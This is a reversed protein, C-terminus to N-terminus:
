LSHGGILTTSEIPIKAAPLPLLNGVPELYSTKIQCRRKVWWLLRRVGGYVYRMGSTPEQLKDLVFCVIGWWGYARVYLARHKWCMKLDSGFIRWRRGTLSSHGERRLRALPEDIAQIQYGAACFRVMFDRDECQRFDPDFGGLARVIHTRFMMTSPIVWYDNMLAQALTMPGPEPTSDPLWWTGFRRYLVNKQEPYMAWVSAHVGSCEPHEELHKRQQELKHPLWIDDDDLFAIYRGRAARIGANRSGALGLNQPLDVIICVGAYRDLFQRSSERSCDNVIIIELPKFTQSLVSQVTEDIYRERNYYPIIVSIDSM